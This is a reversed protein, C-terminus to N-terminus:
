RQPDVPALAQFACTASGNSEPKPLDKKRSSRGDGDGPVPSVAFQIRHTREIPSWIM